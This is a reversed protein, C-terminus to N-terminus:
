NQGGVMRKYDVMERDWQQRKAPRDEKKGAWHYDMWFDGPNITGRALEGVEDGPTKAVWDAIVIARQGDQSIKSFDPDESEIEKRDAKSLKVPGYMKEFTALRTAATKNAGSGSSVEFQFEGRGPGGEAQQARPDNKSEVFGVRRVVADLRATDEASLGKKNKVSNLVSAYASEPRKKNSM